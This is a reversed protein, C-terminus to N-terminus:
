DARLARMPDVTTARWAPGLCALTGAALFVMAVGALAWPDTPETAFLLSALIRGAGFSGVAGIALGIAVLALGQGVVMRLVGGRTAGLAMRVGFEQTRQSVSTALVGTIGTMTVLMALAAFLGLLTATLRPTALYGDRIDELTRVNEVPMDPDVAHVEDRLMRAAALPEGITRLVVHGNNIGPAQTIPFYVQAVAERDLGFQKVDGVIGVVTAWSRGNDFSLQSQLPDAGDWYRTMTRNIVVVRRADVGDAESVARGSLVPVGITSFYGPSVFRADASPRRDPDDM